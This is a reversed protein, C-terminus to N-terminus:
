TGGLPQMAARSWSLLVPAGSEPRGEGRLDNPRDVILMGGGDLAIELRTTAGHYQVSVV